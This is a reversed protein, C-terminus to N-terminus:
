RRRAADHIRREALHRNRVGRRRLQDAGAVGAADDRRVIEDVSVVVGSSKSPWPVCTLPVMPWSVFSPMPVAPTAKLTLSIGTFTSALVQSMRNRRRMSCRRCRRRDHRAADPVRGVVARLDDVHAEAARARGVARRVRVLGVARRHDFRRHAVGDALAAEDRDGAPLSNSSM